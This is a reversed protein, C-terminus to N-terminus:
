GAGNERPRVVTTGRVRTPTRSSPLFSASTLSPTDNCCITSPRLASPMPGRSRIVMRWAILAAPAIWASISTIHHGAREIEGNCQRRDGVRRARIRLGREFAFGFRLAGCLVELRHEEVGRELLHEGADIALSREAALTRDPYPAREQGVFVGFREGLGAADADGVLDVATEEGMLVHALSPARGKM